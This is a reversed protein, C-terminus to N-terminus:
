GQQLGSRRGIRHRYLRGRMDPPRIVDGHDPAQSSLEHHDTTTDALSCDTLFTAVRSLQEAARDTLQHLPLARATTHAAHKLTSM